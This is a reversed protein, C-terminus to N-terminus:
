EKECVRACEKCIQACQQCHEVKMKSCEESCRKCVAACLHMIKQNFESERNHLKIALSCVDACDICLKATEKHGENICMSACASCISLCTVMLELHDHKLHPFASYKQALM